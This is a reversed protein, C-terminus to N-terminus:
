GAASLREVVLAIREDSQVAAIRVHGRGAEGYFEGPSVIAGGDRALRETLAWADGGPAPVWLYFGGGPM